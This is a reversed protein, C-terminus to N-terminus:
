KNKKSEKRFSYKEDFGRKRIKDLNSIESSKTEKDALVGSIFQSIEQFCTFADKVKYFELDKLKSNAEVPFENNLRVNEYDEKKFLKNNITFVPCNISTFWNTYDKAYAINEFYKELESLSPRVGQDYYEVFEIHKNSSTLKDFYEDLDQASYFVKNKFQKLGISKLLICPYLKGCFGIVIQHVEYTENHHVVIEDLYIPLFGKLSGVNKLVRKETHRIYLTESDQGYAVVSDYYDKYKSVIKM